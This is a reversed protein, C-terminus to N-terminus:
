MKYPYRCGVTFIPITDIKETHGGKTVKALIGRDILKRKIYENLSKHDGDQTKVEIGVTYGDVDVVEFDLEYNNYAQFCPREGSLGLEINDYLRTLECYVFNETLVGQKTSNPYNSMRLQVNALGCDTFYVKRSPRIDKIDGNNCLDCTGLIGCSLIWAIAKSVEKRSILEKQNDRVIDALDSIIENGSGKKNSCLLQAAAMYVYQFIGIQRIDNFYANSEKKFTDLLQVLAAICNNISKTKVYEKVIDPYGGIQKYVEYLEFLKKYKEPDGSGFLDISMLDAELSFVRCFEKFQLPRIRVTVITGAPKFFEPNLIQGLYSGTVIIDCKLRDRFTRINNYINKSMQIEDIILVTQDDDVYDPLNNVNCYNQLALENIGPNIVIESFRDMDASLNVYIVQEYHKYAFKKIETTKGVQRAGEVQLVKKHNNRKWESFQKSCDREFSNDRCIQNYLMANMQKLQMEPLRQKKCRFVGASTISLNEINDIYKAITYKNFYQTNKIIFGVTDGQKNRVRHTAKM